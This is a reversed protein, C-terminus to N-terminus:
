LYPDPLPQHPSTRESSLDFDFPKSALDDHLFPESIQATIQESQSLAITLATSHSRFLSIIMRLSIKKSIIGDVLKQYSNM